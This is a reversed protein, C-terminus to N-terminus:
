TLVIPLSAAGTSRRAQPQEALVGAIAVRQKQGGSLTHVPRLGFGQFGRADACVGCPGVATSPWARVKLGVAELAAEVRTRVEEDPLGLRALGFAM